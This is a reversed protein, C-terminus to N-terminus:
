SWNIGVAKLMVAGVEPSVTALKALFADASPFDKEYTVDLLKGGARKFAVEDELSFRPACERVSLWLGTKGIQKRQFSIEKELTEVRKARALLQKGKPTKLFAKVANDNAKVQKQRLSGLKRRRELFVAKIARNLSDDIKM